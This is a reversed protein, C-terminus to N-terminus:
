RQFSFSCRLIDAVTLTNGLDLADARLRGRRDDGGNAVARLELVVAM